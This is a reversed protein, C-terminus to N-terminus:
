AMVGPCLEAEAAGVLFGGDFHDEVQGNAVLASALDLDTHGESKLECIVNGLRLLYADSGKISPQTRVLEVFETPGAHAAPIMTPALFLVATATVATILKKM